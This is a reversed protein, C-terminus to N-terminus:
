RTLFPNPLNRMLDTAVMPTLPREEADGYHRESFRIQGNAEALYLKQSDEPSLALTVTIAGADPKAETNRVTQGPASPAAEPVTDIVVQSVALVQVNQLITQVFYNDVKQRATLDLPNTQFEVSYVVLVDVFDGPIVLGGASTVPKTTVAIGRMGQPVVFSLSRPATASAAAFAVVKSSLIQENQAIPFRTLQGVVASVDTYGLASRNDSPILRVEVMSDTVKTRAPIDQIAVVVPVNNTSIGGGSGSRSFAVYVLIAGLLGLVIALMVFRRNTKPPNLAAAPRSM